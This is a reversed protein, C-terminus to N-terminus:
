NASSPPPSSTPYKILNSPKSVPPRSLRHLPHPFRVGSYLGLVGNAKLIHVFTGLMSKPGDLARTQLRVQM